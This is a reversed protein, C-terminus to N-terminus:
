RAEGRLYSVIKKVFNRRQTERVYDFCDLKLRHTMYGHFMAVSALPSKFLNVSCEALTQPLYYGLEYMGRGTNRATTPTYTLRRSRSILDPIAKTKFGLEQAKYVIYSEWGYCVPYSCGSIKDWVQADVIRGSGRPYTTNVPQGEIRGSVIATKVNLKSLCTEVYHPPYIHDAGSIM